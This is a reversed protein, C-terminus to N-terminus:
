IGGRFAFVRVVLSLIGFGVVGIMWKLLVMEAKILDIQGKLRQESEKIEHRLNDSTTKLDAKLEDKAIKLDEKSVLEKFNVQMVEAFAVAQAEAQKEPVGAAKLTNAFKLTDFTATAM